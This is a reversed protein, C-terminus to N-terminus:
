AAAGPESRRTLEYAGAGEHGDMRWAFMAIQVELGELSLSIGARAEGAARRPFEEGPLWLEIGAARQRGEGDYVTSIRTEEVERWAGGDVLAAAISEAGHGPAGRPRRAQAVLASDPAFVALLSRMSDLDSWAPPELTETAAGLCSVERTRVRGTVRCVRTRSGDLAAPPAIPDFRLEGEAGLGAVWGDGVRALAPPEDLVRQDDGDFVVGIGARASGYLRAAADFFALALAPESM